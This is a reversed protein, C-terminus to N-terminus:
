YYCLMTLWYHIKLDFQKEPFVFKAFTCKVVIWVSSPIIFVRRVWSAFRTLAVVRVHWVTNNVNRNEYNNNGQCICEPMHTFYFYQNWVPFSLDATSRSVCEITCFTSPLELNLNNTFSKLVLKHKRTSLPASLLMKWAVLVLLIDESYLSYASFPVSFSIKPELFEM